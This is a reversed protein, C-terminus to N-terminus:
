ISVIHQSSIWEQKRRTNGGQRPTVDSFNQNYSPEQEYVLSFRPPCDYGYHSDNGYLECLYSEYQPQPPHIFVNPLDNFSNPADVSSNGDKSPCIWCSGEIHLLRMEEFIAFEDVKLEENTVMKMFRNHIPDHGNPVRRKNVYNLVSGGTKNSEQNSVEFSTSVGFLLLWCLGVLFATRLVVKDNMEM